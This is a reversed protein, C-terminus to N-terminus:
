RACEAAAGAIGVSRQLPRIKSECNSWYRPTTELMLIMCPVMLDPELSVNMCAPALWSAISIPTRLGTGVSRRSLEARALDAIEDGPMLSTASAREPSVTVDADPPDASASGAVAVGLRHHEGPQERDVAVVKLVQALRQLLELEVIRRDAYAGSDDPASPNPNRHPKRPNSCM